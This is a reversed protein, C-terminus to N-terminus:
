HSAAHVTGVCVAPPPPPYLYAYRSCRYSIITVLPLGLSVLVAHVVQSNLHPLVAVRALNGCLRLNEDCFRSKTWEIERFLEAEAAVEDARRDVIASGAVKKIVGLAKDKSTMKVASLLAHAKQRM